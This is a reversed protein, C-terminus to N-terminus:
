MFGLLFIGLTAIKRNKPMQLKIVIPIPLSLILIDSLGNLVAFFYLSIASVTRCDGAPTAPDWWLEPVHKCQTLSDAIVSIAYAFAYFLNFWWGIAFSKINMTFLRRYLM